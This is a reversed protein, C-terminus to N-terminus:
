GCADEQTRRVSASLKIVLFISWKWEAEASRVQDKDIREIFDVADEDMLDCRVMQYITNAWGKDVEM